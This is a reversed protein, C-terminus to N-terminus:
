TRSRALQNHWNRGNSNSIVVDEASAIYAPVTQLDVARRRGFEEQSFPRHKRIVMDIKWGTALDLINFISQRRFAEM